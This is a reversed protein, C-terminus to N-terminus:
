RAINGSLNDFGEGYDFVKKKAVRHYLCIMSYQEQQVIASM